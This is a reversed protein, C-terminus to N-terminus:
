TKSHSKRDLGLRSFAIAMGIACPPFYSRYPEAHVMLVFLMQIMIIGMFATITWDDTKFYSSSKKLSSGLIALFRWVLWAIPLIYTCVGFLGFEVLVQLFANHVFGASYVKGGMLPNQNFGTVAQDYYLFRANVSTDAQGFFPITMLRTLTRDLVFGDTTKTSNATAPSPSSISLSAVLLLLLLGYYFLSSLSFQRLRSGLDKLKFILTTGMLFVTGVALALVASRTGSLSAVLGGPVMLALFLIKTPFDKAKLSILLSVSAAFAGLNGAEIPNASDGIALRSANNVAIATGALFDRSLAISTLISLLATIQFIGKFQAKTLCRAVFLALMYLLFKPLVDAPITYAKQAVTIDLVVAVFFTAFLVEILKFTKIKEKCERINMSYLLFLLISGAQFIATLITTRLGVLGTLYFYASLGQVYLSLFFASILTKNM